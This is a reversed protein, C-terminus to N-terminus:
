TLLNLESDFYPLTAHNVLSFRDPLFEKLKLSFGINTSIKVRAGTLM